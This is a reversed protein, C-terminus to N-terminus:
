AWRATPDVIAVIPFAVGCCIFLLCIWIADNIRWVTKVRPDLQNAPLEKM